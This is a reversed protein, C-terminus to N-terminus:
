ALRVVEALDTHRLAAMSLELNVGHERNGAM